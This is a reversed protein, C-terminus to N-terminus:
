GSSRLTASGHSAYSSAAVSATSAGRRDAGSLGRITSRIHGPESASFENTAPSSSKIADVGARRPEIANRSPDESPHNGREKSQQNEDSRRRIKTWGPFGSVPRPWAAGEDDLPHLAIVKPTDSRTACSQVTRENRVVIGINLTCREKVCNWSTGPDAVVNFDNVARTVRYIKCVIRVLPHDDGPEDDRCYDCQKDPSSAQHQSGPPSWAPTM